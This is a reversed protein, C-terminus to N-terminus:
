RSNQRLTGYKIVFTGMIGCYIEFILFGYNRLILLISSMSCTFFVTEYQITGNQVWHIGLPSSVRSIYQFLNIHESMDSRTEIVFSFFNSHLVMITKIVLTVDVDCSEHASVRIEIIM